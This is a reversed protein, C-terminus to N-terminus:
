AGQTVQDLSRYMLAEQVHKRDILAAGELDAITRAIKLIKHYGRMSMGLKDFALKIVQEAAPSLVCHEEVQTAQMHANRLAGFRKEQVAVAQMVEEHLQASSKGTLAADKIEDYNISAVHVHLDIRDLLPGSLKAVYKHVQQSSCTCQKKRDGFYGCPCPNMAAVLLFHAPYEVNCAARSIHVNGSELPERLVELTARTFEPMEDLFLVGHHALSIEGPRPHTGGGVLGAQSITHHPSRFPRETILARNELLGAVSYIKTAEIVEDFSMAPLITSLRRALMTKGSGPSGILLINHRGAAAIQLARKAAQQGKVQNFDVLHTAQQVSQQFTSPTPEIALEGRLYSVLQTLTAVGVVDIGEILSAEQVNAVPIIVRKKGAALAAHVISLVGRVPRIQGDLSLEGLFLSEEVFAESLDILKAAQLIAVAIPVDFLIDEKKLSAPALNVTIFRDPLSLGSNKFAARIRDKSEKIAKDPLGVICFGMLGFSLDAEVDVPHANIGITTASHVLAHMVITSLILAHFQLHLRRCWVV